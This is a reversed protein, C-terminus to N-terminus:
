LYDEFHPSLRAFLRSGVRYTVIALILLGAFTWDPYWKGAFLALRIEEVWWTLPNLWLWAAWGEPLMEPSYLIPTLFFWFLLVTPLAQEIDRVFVQLAALMLGLGLALVYGSLLVLLLYPLCRWYLDAALGEVALLVLAYGALHIFFAASVSASVLWNRPVAVKSILVAHQRLWQSRRPLAESFALWPWLAVALWAVFPLDLDSPVRARFVIGFVFAYVALMLLPTVVLWTWGSTSGLFRSRLERNLLHVFLPSPKLSLVPM